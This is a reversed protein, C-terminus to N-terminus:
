KGTERGEGDSAQKETEKILKNDRARWWRKRTEQKEGDSATEREGGNSAQKKSKGM